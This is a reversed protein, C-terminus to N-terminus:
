DIKEKGGKIILWIALGLEGLAMPLMLIMELNATFESNFNTLKLLHVIIYSIGASLTLYCIIKPIRKHNKMLIGLLFIHTGFVILGGYWISQFSKINTSMEHNSIVISNLNKVLYLTAIGFVITYTIRLVSSILSIRNNDIEFYRYLTLSVLLDLILITLIGGLMSKYLGQNNIIKSKLLDLQEPQYFESFAYGISFGAIIAMLILSVGTLIAIQRKSM